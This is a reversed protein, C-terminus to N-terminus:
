IKLKLQQEEWEQKLMAFQFESGWKGKFFINEIFHGEERFGMDKLLSISAINEADVTEVVRHINKEGFLFRLIGSLVERAYGKRQETHSITIGAEAIRTDNQLLRIACDGILKGSARNEIGYQVWEGGKGFELNLQSTIFAEAEALSMPDFSQYRTIDPNSRYFYFDQIDSLALNRIILRPTEINLIEM